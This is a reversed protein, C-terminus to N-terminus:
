RLWPMTRTPGVYTGELWADISLPHPVDSDKRLLDDAPVAYTLPVFSDAEREIVVGAECDRGLRALM